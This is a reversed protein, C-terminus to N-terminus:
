RKLGEYRYVWRDLVRDIGDRVYRARGMTPATPSPTEDFSVEVSQKVALVWDPRAWGREMPLAMVEGDFPGGVLEVGDETSPHWVYRYIRSNRGEVSKVSSLRVSEPRIFVRYKEAGVGVMEQQAMRDRAGVPVPVEDSVEFQVMLLDRYVKADNKM